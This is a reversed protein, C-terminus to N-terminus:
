VILTLQAAPQPGAAREEVAPSPSQGDLLQYAYAAAGTQGPQRVCIINHGRKRLEAVRSNLRMTGAREHIEPVPHLLGDKLVDLVRNTQSRPNM